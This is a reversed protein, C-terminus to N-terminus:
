PEDVYQLGNGIYVPLNNNIAGTDDRLKKGDISYIELTIAGFVLADKFCNTLTEGPNPTLRLAEWQALQQNNKVITLPRRCRILIAHFKALNGGGSPTFTHSSFEIYIHPPLGPRQQATVWHPALGTDRMTRLHLYNNNNLRNAHFICNNLIGNANLLTDLEDPSVSELYLHGAM